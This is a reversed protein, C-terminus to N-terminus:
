LADNASGDAPFDSTQSENKEPRHAEPLLEVHLIVRQGLPLDIPEDPVFVKGDFHAKITILNLEATESSEQKQVM